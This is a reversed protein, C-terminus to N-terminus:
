LKRETKWKRCKWDLGKSTVVDLGWVNSKQTMGALVFLPYAQEGTRQSDGWGRPRFKKRHPM